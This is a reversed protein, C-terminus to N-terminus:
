QTLEARPRSPDGTVPDIREAPSTYPSRVGAERLADRRVTLQPTLTVVDFKPAATPLLLVGATSNTM